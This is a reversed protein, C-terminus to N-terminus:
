GARGRGSRTRSMQWVLLERLAKDCSVKKRTWKPIECVFNLAGTPKGAADLEFLPLDHWLSRHEGADCKVFFRTDHTDIPGKVETVLKDHSISRKLPRVDSSPLELGDSKRKASADTSTNSGAGM